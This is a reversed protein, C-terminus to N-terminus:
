PKETSNWHYVDNGLNDKKVDIGYQLLKKKLKQTSMKPNTYIANFFELAQKTRIEGPLINDVCTPKYTYSQDEDISENLWKGDNAKLHMAFEEFRDMAAEMIQQRSSSQLPKNAKEVDYLYNKLYQAFKPLEKTLNDVFDNDFGKLDTLNGGTEIVTFRRDGAEIVVPVVENSFFLFNARNEAEYAKDFKDEIWITDDTIFSKLRPNVKNRSKNDYAVENFGVLFADKMYGTYKEELLQNSVLKCQRRGFLPSLLKSFMLGKGAGQPGRFILATRLKTRTNLIASFWNIAYEYDAADPALNNLLSFISPFDTSPVVIEKTRDLEMYETAKFFNLSKNEFDIWSPDHPDFKPILLPYYDPKVMNFNKLLNEIDNKKVGHLKEHLYYQYTETLGNYFIWPKEPDVDASRLQNYAFAIPSRNGRTLIKSCLQNKCKSAFSCLSPIQNLSSLQANTKSEDYDHLKAFYTHVTDKGFKVLINALWIRESHTLYRQTELKDFLEKTYECNSTILPLREIDLSGSSSSRDFSPSPPSKPLNEVPPLDMKTIEPLGPVRVLDKTIFHAYSGTEQHVQLPLKAANGDNRESNLGSQAPFIDIKFREDVLRISQVLCEIWRRVEAAPEPSNFHIWFHVGRRGSFEIAHPINHTDLADSIIKVQKRLPEQWDELEFAPDDATHKEIDLDLMAWKVTSNKDLQYVALTKDSFLIEGTLESSFALYKKKSGKPQQVSYKHRTHIYLDIYRERDEASLNQKDYQTDKQEHSMQKHEQRQRLPLTM